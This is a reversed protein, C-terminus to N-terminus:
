NNQRTYEDIYVLLISKYCTYCYYGNKIPNDIVFIYQLNDGIDSTCIDCLM